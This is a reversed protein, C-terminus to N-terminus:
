TNQRDFICPKPEFNNPPYIRRHDFTTYPCFGKFEPMVFVDKASDNSNKGFYRMKEPYTGHIGLYSGCVNTADAFQPSYSAPPHHWLRPDHFFLRETINNLWLGVQQDAHAHCLMTSENQSLFKYIIDPTLVMFAEDIWTIGVSCHFHGWVLHQKPRTPLERVLRKLCLFYDDDITLFYQFDFKATAWKIQNLFRLGFEWGGKLPQLVLDKYRNKEHIAFTANFM